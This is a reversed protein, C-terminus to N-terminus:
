DLPMYLEEYGTALLKEREFYSRNKVVREECYEFEHMLQAAVIRLQEPNLTNTGFIFHTVGGLIPIFSGASVGYTYIPKYKLSDVPYWGVKFGIKESRTQPTFPHKAFVYKRLDYYSISQAVSQPAIMKLIKRQDRGSIREYRGNLFFQFVPDDQLMGWQEETLVRGQVLLGMRIQPMLTRVFSQFTSAKDTHLSTIVRRGAQAHDEDYVHVYPLTVAETYKPRKYEISLGTNLKEM